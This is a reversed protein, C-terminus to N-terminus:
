NTTRNGCDDECAPSWSSTERMFLRSSSFWVRWLPTCKFCSCVFHELNLYICSGRKKKITSTSYFNLAKPQLWAQQMVEPHDPNQKPNEHGELGRQNAASRGHIIVPYHAKVFRHFSGCHTWFHQQSASRLLKLKDANCCYVMNPLLDTLAYQYCLIEKFICLQSLQIPSSWHQPQHSIQWKKKKVLGLSPEM